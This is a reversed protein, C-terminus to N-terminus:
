AVRRWYGPAVKNLHHLIEGTTLTPAFVYTGEGADDRQPNCEDLDTLRAWETGTVMRDLYWM